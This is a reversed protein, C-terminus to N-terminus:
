RHSREPQGPGFVHKGEEDLDRDEPRLGKVMKDRDTKRGYRRDTWISSIRTDKTQIYIEYEDGNDWTNTDDTVTDETVATITGNTEQTTNHVIMDLAVGCSLFNKGKDWLYACSDPGKHTGSAHYNNEDCNHVELVGGSM